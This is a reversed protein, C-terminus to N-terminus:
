FPVDDDFDEETKSDTINGIKKIEAGPFQKKVEFSIKNERYWSTVVRCVENWSMTVDADTIKKTDGSHRIFAWKQGEEDKHYWVRDLEPTHGAKIAKSQLVKWGLALNKCKLIMNEEDDERCAIQYSQYAREFKAATEPDVLKPLKNFGWKSEMEHQVELMSQQAAIIARSRYDSWMDPLKWDVQEPTFTKRKQMNKKAASSIPKM